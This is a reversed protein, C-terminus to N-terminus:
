ILDLIILELNVSELYFEIISLNNEVFIYLNELNIGLRKVRM